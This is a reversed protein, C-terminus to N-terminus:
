RSLQELKHNQSLLKILGNEGVLHGAGVVIFYTHEQKLWEEIKAAMLKNRDDFFRKYVPVLEPDEKVAKTIIAELKKEDGNSWAVTMEEFLKATNDMDKETFKLFLEQEKDTFGALLNLQADTTELARIQKKDKARTLFHMDIGNQPNVGLQALEVMIMTMGVFWPKLRKMNAMPLGYKELRKATADWTEKSLHKEISDEPPYTAKALMQAGVADLNELVNVEVVLTDAEAFAKEIRDPLPYVDPKAVHMSGFLYATAKASKLKWLFLNQPSASVEAARLGTGLLVSAVVAWLVRITYKTM